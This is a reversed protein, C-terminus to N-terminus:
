AAEAYGLEYHDPDPQEMQTRLIAVSALERSTVENVVQKEKYEMRPQSAEFIGLTFPMIAFNTAVKGLEPADNARKEALYAEYQQYNRERLNIM